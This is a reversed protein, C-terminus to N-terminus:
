TCRNGPYFRAVRENGDRGGQQQQWETQRSLFAGSHRGRWAHDQHELSHQM